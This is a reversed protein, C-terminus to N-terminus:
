SSLGVLERLKNLPLNGVARHSEEGGDFVILTPIAQVGFRQALSPMEDINVKVIDMEGALEESLKNLHPAIARCPGCWQAWFDVLVPKTAQLVLAEFDTETANIM